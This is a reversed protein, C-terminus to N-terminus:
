TASASDPRPDLRALREEGWAEALIARAAIKSGKPVYLDPHRAVGHSASGMEVVDFDPGDTMSPIGHESLLERAMDAEMPDVSSLLLDFEESLKKM